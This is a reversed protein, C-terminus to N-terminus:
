EAEFGFDDFGLTRCNETVTRTIHDPTGGPLAAQIELTVTVKAGSLSALHKIIEDSIQGGASGIRLPDLSVSGYFRRAAAPDTGPAPPNTPHPTPEPIGDPDRAPPPPPPELRTATREHEADLQLRAVDPKVLVADRTSQIGLVTGAQLGRYRESDEDWSEAYAFSDEHWTLLAIGNQIAELLVQSDRLRPLYLYKAFDDALQAIRVHDGRWLPIRDLEMRLRTGGLETILLEDNKLRRATREALPQHGQVRLEEWQIDSGAKAGSPLSPVLLWTYTEPIRQDVSDHAEQHKTHALNAQFADLNLQEREDEISKWALYKRVADELEALRSSDPALFVLANRYERPINGRQELFDAARLRAPSDGSRAQHPHDPGLIVLRTEREDPVDSSSPPEVQVAAFDARDRQAGRLRRLIEQRVADEPQQAARDQALRNVSPQTSLWYRQGDSYLHTAQDALRRIADGFTAVSEGPQAAGLKIQRDDLGKNATHLTPASGLYITRAVRRAASYRGLNPHERDLRLPLSHPGDVDKGIVSDWPGDLYRTLESQVAPADIPV